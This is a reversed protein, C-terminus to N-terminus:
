EELIIILQDGPFIRSRPSLNNWRMLDNLDVNYMAAIDWVTDGKKVTYLFSRQNAQELESSSRATESIESSATPRESTSACTQELEQNRELFQYNEERLRQLEYRMLEQTSLEKQHLLFAYMGFISFVIVFCIWTAATLSIHLKQTWHQENM